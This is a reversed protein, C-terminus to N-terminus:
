RGLLSPLGQLLPDDQMIGISLDYAYLTEKSDAFVLIAREEYCHVLGGVGVVEQDGILKDFPINLKFADAPMLVSSDAGTDLLFSIGGKIGLRPIVIQAEMYPAHSTGGYRGYLM